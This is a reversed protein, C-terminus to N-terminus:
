RPTSCMRPGTTARPSVARRRWAGYRISTPGCRSAPPGGDRRGARGTRRTPSRRWWCRVWCIRWSGAGGTASRGRSRRAPQGSLGPRVRHLVDHRSGGTGVPGALGGLRRLPARAASSTPSAVSRRRSRGTRPGAPRARCTRRGPRHGHCRYLGDPLGHPQSSLELQGGPEFTLAASLPLAGVAAVAADIRDHAVPTRPRDRDHILWELEVGVTRPPGTKFCICRLLDEAEGEGLPRDYDTPGHGVPADPSM